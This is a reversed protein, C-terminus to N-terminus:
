SCDTLRFKDLSLHLKVPPSSLPWAEITTLLSWLTEDSFNPLVGYTMLFAIKAASWRSSFDLYIRFDRSETITRTEFCSARHSILLKLKRQVLTIVKTV